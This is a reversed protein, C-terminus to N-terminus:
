KGSGTHGGSLFWAALSGVLTGVTTLAGALLGGRVRVTELRINTDHVKEYLSGIHESNEATRQAIPQVSLAIHSKLEAIMRDLDERSAPPM